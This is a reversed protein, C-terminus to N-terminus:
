ISCDYYAPEEMGDSFENKFFRCVKNEKKGFSLGKTGKEVLLVSTEKDGTKCMVVYLDSFSGGTIFCKAGNLVFHDGMDKAYTKMNAADSGTDPETLCYSVFSEYQAARTLYKEKL